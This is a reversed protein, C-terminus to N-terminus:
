RLEDRSRAVIVTTAFVRVCNTHDRLMWPVSEVVQEVVLRTKHLEEVVAEGPSSGAEAGIMETPATHEERWHFPSALVLVGGPQLVRSIEALLRRPHSSADLVNLCIVLDFDPGFPLSTADAVLVEIPRDARPAPLPRWITRAGVDVVDYGTMPTPVGLLIRRATLALEFSLDVGIAIDALDGLVATTGGVGCGIELARHPKLQALLRKVVARLGHAQEWTSWEKLTPSVDDLQDRYHADLYRQRYAASPSTLGLSEEWGDVTRAAEDMKLVLVGDRIPYSTSCATCRAEGTLVDAASNEESALLKLPGQCDRRVCRLGSVM